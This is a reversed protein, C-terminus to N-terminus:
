DDVDGHEGMRVVELARALDVGVRQRPQARLDEGRLAGGDVADGAGGVGRVAVLLAHLGREVECSSVWSTRSGTVVWGVRRAAQSTTSARAAGAAPACAAAGSREAATWAVFFFLFFRRRGRSVCTSPSMMPM